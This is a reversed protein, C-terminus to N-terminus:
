RNRRRFNHHDHRQASFSQNRHMNRDMRDSRAGHRNGQSRMIQRTRNKMRSGRIIQKNNRKLRQNRIIQNINRRASQSRLTRRSSKQRPQLDQKAIGKVPAKAGKM